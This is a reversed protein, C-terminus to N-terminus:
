QGRTKYASAIRAHVPMESLDPKKPNTNPKSTDTKPVTKTFLGSDKAKKVWAVKEAPSLSDPILLRVNEPVGALFADLVTSLEEKQRDADPTTREEETEGVTKADSEQKLEDKNEKQKTM